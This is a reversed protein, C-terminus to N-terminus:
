PSLCSTSRSWIGCSPSPQRGFRSLFRVLRAETERGDDAGHRPLVRWLFGRRRDCRGTPEARRRGGLRSRRLWWGILHMRHHVLHHRLAEM